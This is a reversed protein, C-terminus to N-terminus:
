VTEKESNDCNRVTRVWELGRKDDLGVFSLVPATTSLEMLQLIHMYNDSRVYGELEEWSQWVELYVFDGSGEQFDLGCYICGERVATRSALLRFASLLDRRKGKPPTLQLRMHIM